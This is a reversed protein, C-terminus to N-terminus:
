RFRKVVNSGQFQEHLTWDGVAVFLNSLIYALSSQICMDDIQNYVKSNYEVYSGLYIKLLKMFNAISIRCQNQFRVTGFEGISDEVARLAGKQPNSNYVNNVHVSFIPTCSMTELFEVVSDSNRILFPNDAALTKLFNQM